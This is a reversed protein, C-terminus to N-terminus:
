IDKEAGKSEAKEEPFEELVKMIEQRADSELSVNSANLLTQVERKVNNAAEEEIASLNDITDTDSEQEKVEEEAKPNPTFFYSSVAQGLAWVIQGFTAENAVPEPESEIEKEIPVIDKDETKAKKMLISSRISERHPVKVTVNEGDVEMEFSVTSLNDPDEIVKGSQFSGRRREVETEYKDYASLVQSKQRKLSENHISAVSLVRFSSNNVMLDKLNHSRPAAEVKVEGDSDYVSILDADSDNIDKLLTQSIKSESNKSKQRVLKAKSKSKAKEQVIDEVVKRNANELINMREEFLELEDRARSIKKAPKGREFMIRYLKPPLRRRWKYEKNAKTLQRKTLPKKRFQEAYGDWLEDHFPAEKWVGFRALWQEKFHAAPLFYILVTEKFKVVKKPGTKIMKSSSTLGRRLAM